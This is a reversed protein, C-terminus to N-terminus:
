VVEWAPAPEAGMQNDRPAVDSTQSTEVFHTSDQFRKGRTRSTQVALAGGQIYFDRSLSTELVNEMGWSHGARM